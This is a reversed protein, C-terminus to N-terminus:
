WKLCADSTSAVVMPHSHIPSWIDVCFGLMLGCVVQVM